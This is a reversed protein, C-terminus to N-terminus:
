ILPHKTNDQNKRGESRPILCFFRVNQLAKVVQEMYAIQEDPKTPQFRPRSLSHTPLLLLDFFASSSPPFSRRWFFFVCPLLIGRWESVKEAKQQRVQCDYAEYPFEIDVGRLTYTPMALSNPALGGFRRSDSRTTPRFSRRRAM